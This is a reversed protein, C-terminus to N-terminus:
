GCHVWCRYIQQYVEEGDRLCITFPAIPNPARGTRLSTLSRLSAARDSYALLITLRNQVAGHSLLGEPLYFAAQPGSDCISRYIFRCNLYTLADRDVWEARRMAETHAMGAEEKLVPLVYNAIQGDWWAYVSSFFILSFRLLLALLFLVVGFLAARFYFHHGKERKTSFATLRWYSAFFYGCLLSLAFVAALDM